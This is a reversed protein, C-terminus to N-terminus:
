GAVAWTNKTNRYVHDDEMVWWDTYWDRNILRFGAEVVHMDQYMEDSLFNVQIQGKPNNNDSIIIRIRGAHDKGNPTTIVGDYGYVDGYHPSDNDTIDKFPLANLYLQYEDKIHNFM